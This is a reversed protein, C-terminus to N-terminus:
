RVSQRNQVGVAIAFNDGNLHKQQEPDSKQM